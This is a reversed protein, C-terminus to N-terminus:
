VEVEIEIFQWEEFRYSYHLAAYVTALGKSNQPHPFTQNRSSCYGIWRKEKKPKIRFVYDSDMLDIDESWVMDSDKKSETWDSGKFSFEAKGGNLIHCAAVSNEKTCLFYKSRRDFMEDQNKPIQWESKIGNYFKKVLDMNAAKAVIMDYHVHKM